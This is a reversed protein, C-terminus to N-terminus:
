PDKVPIVKIGTGELNSKLKELAKHVDGITRTGTCIIKGTSFLLFVARPDSIRLVLGPFQEPEYEANEMCMVIEELDLRAKIRTSAVINEIMLDFQQPVDIGANRMKSVVKRVADGAKEVSNAGTCVIKGSSFILAAARPEKIRYVVGPFREPDYETDELKNVLENLDIKKKLVAFAVVNEIKVHFGTIFGGVKIYSIPNITLLPLGDL